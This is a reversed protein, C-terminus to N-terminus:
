QVQEANEKLKGLTKMFSKMDADKVGVSIEDMISSFLVGLDDLKARGKKTVELTKKRRDESDNVREIYKKEELVDVIRLVASKDMGVSAAIVTQTTDGEEGVKILISFQELTLETEREQFRKVVVKRFVRMFEGFQFGISQEKKGEEM